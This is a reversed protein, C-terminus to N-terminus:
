LFEEQEVPCLCVPCSVPIEMWERLGGDEEIRYVLALDSDQGGIILGEDGGLIAFHRPTKVRLETFVPEELRGDEGVRFRVLSSLGRNSAYVFRGSRSIQLHGGTIGRDRPLDWEGRRCEEPITSIRQIERWAETGEEQEWVSVSGHLENIQYLKGNGSHLEGIRPGSGPQCVSSGTERGERCSILRDMGLDVSLFSGDELFLGSHAHASEQRDPVPGHGEHQSFGIKEGIGAKTLAYFAVSGGTYNSVAMKTGSGNLAIHCPDEGDTAAQNLFRLGGDELIEHASVAGGPKGQFSATEQVAYLRSGDPSVALFSPNVAETVTEQIWTKEEPDLMGQVIGKPATEEERGTNTYTGIYIRYKSM